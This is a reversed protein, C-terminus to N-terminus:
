KNESNATGLEGNRQCNRDFFRGIAISLEKTDNGYLKNLDNGYRLFNELSNPTPRRKRNFIINIKIM